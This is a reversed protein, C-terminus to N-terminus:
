YELFSELINVRQKCNYRFYTKINVGFEGSFHGRGNPIFNAMCNKSVSTGYFSTFSTDHSLYNYTVMYLNMISDLWYQTEIAEKQNAGINKTVLMCGSCIGASKSKGQVTDYDSLSLLYYFSGARRTLTIVPNYRIQRVENKM